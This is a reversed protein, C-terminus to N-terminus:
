RDLTVFKDKVAEIEATLMLQQKNLRWARQQFKKDQQQFLLEKNKYGGEEEAKIEPEKLTKHQKVTKVQIRQKQLDVIKKFHMNELKGIETDKLSKLKKYKDKLFTIDNSMKELQEKHNAMENMLRNAQPKFSIQALAGQLKKLNSM